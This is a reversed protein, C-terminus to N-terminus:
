GAAASSRPWVFWLFAGGCVMLYASPEPIVTPLANPDRVQLLFAGGLYPQNRPESYGTVYINGRGDASVGLAHDPLETDVYLTEQHNGETDYKAIYSSIDSFPLSTRPEFYEGVLYVNGYGDVDVDNGQGRGPLDVFTHWLQDGDPSYKSLFALDVLGNVPDTGHYIGTIYANGSTDVAIGYSEDTAADGTQAVWLQNGDTDYKALLLDSSGRNDAALSGQTYGAVLVNGQRDVAIANLLEAWHTGFHRTWLIEGGASLKTIVADEHHRGLDTVSSITGAVYASGLTDAAIAVFRGLPPPGWQTAWQQNGDKDFGVTRYDLHGSPDSAVGVTSSTVVVHGTSTVAVGHGYEHGSTGFQTGWVQNGGADYKALFTDYAGLNPGFVSGRSFGTLYVDGQSDTAVSSGYDLFESGFPRSWNLYMSDAQAPSALPLVILLCASVHMVHWCHAAQIM